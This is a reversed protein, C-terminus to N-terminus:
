KIIFISFAFFISGINLGSGIFRLSAFTFLAMCTFEIILNGNYIVKNLLVIFHNILECFFLDVFFGQVWYPM